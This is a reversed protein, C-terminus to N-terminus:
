LDIRNVFFTFIIIRLYINFLRFVGICFFFLAVHQTIIISKKLGLFSSPRFFKQLRGQTVFVIFLVFLVDSNFSVFFNFIGRRFQIFVFSSSSSTMLSVMVFYLSIIKPGPVRVQIAHRSSSRLFCAM